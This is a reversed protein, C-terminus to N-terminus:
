PMYRFGSSFGPNGKHFRRARLATLFINRFREGFSDELARARKNRPDNRPTMRGMGTTCTCLLFSACHVGHTM